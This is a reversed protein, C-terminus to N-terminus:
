FAKLDILDHPPAPKIKLRGGNFKELKRNIKGKESCQRAEGNSDFESEWKTHNCQLLDVGTWVFFQLVGIHVNKDQEETM